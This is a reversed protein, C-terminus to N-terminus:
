KGRESLAMISSAVEFKRATVDAMHVELTGPTLLRHVEVPKLQGM